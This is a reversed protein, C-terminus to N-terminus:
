RGNVAGMPPDIEALRCPASLRTVTSDPLGWGGAIRSGIKKVGFDSIGHAHRDLKTTTLHDLLHACMAAIVEM